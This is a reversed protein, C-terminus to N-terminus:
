GPEKGFNKLDGVSSELRPLPRGLSGRLSFGVKGDGRQAARLEPILDFLMKFTENAEIFESKLSFWGLGDLRTTYPNPGLSVNVKVEAELDGGTLSFTKTEVQGKELSFEALLKGLDIKPISISSAFAGPLTIGGPGFVGKDISFKITGKGDKSIKETSSVDIKINLIGGIFSGLSEHLFVSKSLDLKEVDLFAESFKNNKGIKIDADLEGGYLKSQAIIRRSGSLLAFLGLRGKLSDIELVLEASKKNPPWIIKLGDLSLGSLRWLSADKMLVQPLDRGKPGMTLAGRLLTNEAAKKVVSSPFSCYSAVIFILLFTSPYLIWRLKRLIDM